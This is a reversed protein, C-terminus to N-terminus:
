VSYWIHPMFRSWDVTDFASAPLARLGVLDECLIYARAFCYCFGAVTIPILAGLPVDMAPDRGPCNNRLRTRAQRFGEITAVVLKSNQLFKPLYSALTRVNNTHCAPAFAPLIFFTWRDVMWCFVIAAMVTLISIRWLLLEFLTPFRFHWGGFLIAGYAAHVIFLIILAFATPPPFLDDQFRDIPKRPTSFFLIKFKRLINMWYTWYLYWSWQDIGVFDLPTFRYPANPPEGARDLIESIPVDCDLYFPDHVDMPKQRWFFYTGITCVIFGSATLELTTVTLHQLVRGVCNVSFWLIQFVTIFRVAGNAKNKDSIGRTEIGVCEYHIYGHTVLYHVQKANVPFAGVQGGPTRLVFGGMDALFAHKMSWQPYGSEKFASVSRRASSWQGIAIQFIFEPGVIGLCTLLLKQHFQRWPGWRPSPVSLCLSSRCCLFITSFSSTIIDVTGRGHPSSTWGLLADNDTDVDGQRM